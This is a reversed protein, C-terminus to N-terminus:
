KGDARINDMPIEHKNKKKLMLWNTVFFGIGVLVFMSGKVVFTLDSDFSRCIALLAIIVMGFNLIGLNTRISGERIMLFAMFFVFLNVLIYSQSTFIGVVILIWFLIYTFEILKWESISKTKYQRYLLVSASIFLVLSAIIEPSSILDGLIYKHDSLNTWNSKFSMVLMTIITGALGFIRYGNLFIPKGNFFRFNGILYFMGFMTMFAPPMFMRFKHSLIGLTMTLVFPIVWHHLTFLLNDSTKKFLQFYRPLPLTVLLWFLYKGFPNTSNSQVALGYSMIGLFYALSVASSDMLYILPAILLMWTLCFTSPDGNIHYIQTVLSINAGVVFFLLLAASERWVIKHYKKLIVYGTLLQPIVLLYFALSTKLSRSLDEWQNAVIFMVGLGVLLAGATGFILLQRNPSTARKGQFYDSIKRATENTIIEANVLETLDKVLSM